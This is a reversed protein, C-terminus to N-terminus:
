AATTYQNIVGGVRRQRRLGVSDLDTIPAPLAALPAAQNLSRHPRHQNYHTEYQRLVQLLHRENWILTHDFLERRCSGIWREMIANARPARIPSRLIRIGADLFVADFAAIFKTDRDRILFKVTSAHEGLDMLLNRAQQTVWANDPHVTTGLIRIRRNAHEIVALVYASAGNILDVTFFDTALIAQAQGRQFQAWTPGAHRPTPPLGARTLIEWVTSPAIPIGLGALEGHIRRYGWTPNEKALRLVAAVVAQHKRPRGPLKHGSKATWRRRLIDRPWRLATEPMVFLRLGNRRGSPILDLLVTILARDAWTIKPRVNVQRQLVTLQHRLLLIEATKWSEGRRSLRLWNLLQRITLYVLRLAVASIM